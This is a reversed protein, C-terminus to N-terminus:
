KEISDWQDIVTVKQKPKEVARKIVSRLGFFDKETDDCWERYGSRPDATDKEWGTVNYREMLAPLWEAKPGEWYLDACYPSVMQIFLALNPTCGGRLGFRYSGLMIPIRMPSLVCCEPWGRMIAFALSQCIVADSWAPGGLFAVSMFYMETARDMESGKPYPDALYNRYMRLYKDPMQEYIPDQKVEIKPRKQKKVKPM